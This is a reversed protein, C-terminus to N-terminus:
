PPLLRALQEVTLRNWRGIRFIMPHGGGRIPLRCVEAGAAQARRLFATTGAAPVLRDRTGHIASLRSRAVPAVPDDAPLWPALGVVGRVGQRDAVRTAVRGGMSHGILVIPRDPHRASILALAWDADAIVDRGDGDWGTWSHQLRYVALDGRDGPLRRWRRAVTRALLTCRLVQPRWWSCRATGHEPGGHLVLVVASPNAPVSTAVLRAGTASRTM